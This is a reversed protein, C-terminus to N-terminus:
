DPTLDDIRHDLPGRSRSRVFDVFIKRPVLVIQRRRQPNLKLPTV